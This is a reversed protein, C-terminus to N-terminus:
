EIGEDTGPICSRHDTDEGDQEEKDEEERIRCRHLLSFSSDKIKSEERNDSSEDSGEWPHTCEKVESPGLDMGIERGIMPIGDGIEDVAEEALGILACGIDALILAIKRCETRDDAEDEEDM